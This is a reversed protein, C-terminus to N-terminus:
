TASKYNARRTPYEKGGKKQVRGPPTFHANISRLHSVCLIAEQECHQQPQKLSFPIHLENNSSRIKALECMLAKNAKSM